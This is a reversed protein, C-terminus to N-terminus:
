ETTNNRERRSFPSMIPGPDDHSPHVEHPSGLRIRALRLKEHRHNNSVDRGHHYKQQACPISTRSAVTM